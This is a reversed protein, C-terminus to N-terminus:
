PNPQFTCACLIKSFGARKGAAFEDRGQQLRDASSIPKLSWEAEKADTVRCLSALMDRQTLTFSSIRVFDNAFRSLTPGQYSGEADVPLSLLKAVAEGCRGRTSNTILTNGGDYLVASRDHIDFGFASPGFGLGSEYWFGCCVAIWNMGPKTEIVRRNAVIAQAFMIDQNYAEDLYEEGWENPLVWRVGAESAADILKTSTDPPAAVALTIVLCDQGRLASVLSSHDSSYDVKAVNVGSPMSSTSNPRTIVTVKHQRTKLLSSVIYSGIQGAAGVIAVNVIRNSRSM